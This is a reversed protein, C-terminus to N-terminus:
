GRIINLTFRKGPEQTVVGEIELMTLEALMSPADLGTATILEDIHIPEAGMAAVISLQTETLNELQKELDIYEVPNPKDIVKKTVPVRVQVFDAYKEKLIEPERERIHLTNEGPDRLKGRYLEKFECLVDWARTVPKAGDKLLQNTGACNDADVNGPLAFIEKGQELAENAFLLAGSHEPAEVVLVGVSLGATIRNRQRFNTKYTRQGPPYESVLAGHAAVDDFIGGRAEDHGSGLVGIVKGGAILAGEAGKRDIGRTLGSLVVGGGMAIDHGFKRAMKLGYPTADRTGVIAIAAEDDLIPLRGRVYLVVPPDYINKLRCPYAADQITVIDVKLAECRALIDMAEDLQRLGIHALDDPRIGEVTTLEVDTSYFLREPDGQFHELLLQKARPRMRLASLWVWYKIAAM